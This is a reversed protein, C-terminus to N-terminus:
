INGNAIISSSSQSWTMSKFTLPVKKVVLATNGPIIRRRAPTTKFMPDSAPARMNDAGTWTLNCMGMPAIGFPLQWHQGLYPKSLSRSSVDVLVRPQLRIRELADENLARLYEDGAGGDIYDFVLRPLRRRAKRRADHITHIGSM